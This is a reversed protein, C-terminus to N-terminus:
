VFLEDFDTSLAVNTTKTAAPADFLTTQYAKDCVFWDLHGLVVTGDGREIAVNIGNTAIARGRMSPIGDIQGVPEGKVLRWERPKVQQFSHSALFEHLSTYM